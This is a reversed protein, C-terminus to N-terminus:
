SQGTMLLAEILLAPFRKGVAQPNMRPTSGATGSLCCRIM